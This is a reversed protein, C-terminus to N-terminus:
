TSLIELTLRLHVRHTSYGALGRGIGGEAHVLVTHPGLEQSASNRGHSVPLGWRMIYRQAAQKATDAEVWEARAGHVNACLWHKV